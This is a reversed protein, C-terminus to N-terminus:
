YKMKAEGLVPSGFVKRKKTNAGLARGFIPTKLLKELRVSTNTETKTRLPHPPCTQRFLALIGWFKLSIELQPCDAGEARGQTRAQM